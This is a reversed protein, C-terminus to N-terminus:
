LCSGFTCAFSLAITFCLINSIPGTVVAVIALLYERLYLYYSFVIGGGLIGSYFLIPFLEVNAVAFKSLLISIVTGAYLFDSSIILFICISAIGSLVVAGILDDITLHWGRGIKKM